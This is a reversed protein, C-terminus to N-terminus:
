WTAKLRFKSSGVTKLPFLSIDSVKVPIFKSIPATIGVTYGTKIAGLAEKFYMRSSFLNQIISLHLIDLTEAPPNNGM